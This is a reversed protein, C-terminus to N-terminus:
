SAHVSVNIIFLLSTLIIQKKKKMEGNAEAKREQLVVEAWVAAFTGKQAAPSNM